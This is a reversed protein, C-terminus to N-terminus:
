SLGAMELIDQVLADQLDAGLDRDAEEKAAKAAWIGPRAPIIWGRSKQSLVRFTIYHSQGRSGFKYLGTYKRIDSYAMGAEELQHTTLGKSQGEHTWKSYKLRTIMQRPGIAPTVALESRRGKIRMRTLEKAMQYVRQPMPQMGTATAGPTSHRFPIILYLTGNKARRAKKANPLCEKMDREPTGKEVAEAYSIENVLHFDLYAPETLKAGNALNGTPHRLSSGNPLMAGNLYSRYLTLAYEASMNCAEGFRKFATLEGQEIMARISDAWAGSLDIPLIAM